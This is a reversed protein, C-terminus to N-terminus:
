SRKKFDTVVVERSEMGIFSAVLYITDTQPLSLVFVGKEDTSVGVRTEKVIITAGSLTVGKDDLVKGRLTVEQVGDKLKEEKKIVIVNHSIRFTYGTGELCAQLISMVPIREFHRTIAPIKEMEENNYLIDYRSHEKIYNLVEVFPTEKFEVTLRSNEDVQANCLQTGFSHFLVFLLLTKSMKRGIMWLKSKKKKM